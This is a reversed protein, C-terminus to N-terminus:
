KKQLNYKKVLEYVVKNITDEIKRFQFDPLTKLIKSNDYIISEQASRATEKTLLSKKGQLFAKLYSLRWIIESMFPTASKTPSKKGFADAMLKFLDKFSINTSNLIFKEGSVPSEMLKIMVEAVDEVDVYGHIGQTYYSFEEYVNKFLQTSGSNWDGAGLIISPNVIAMDMGEAFGRWVHMEAEHKTKGYYSAKREDFKTNEDIMTGNPTKGLAAVSSVYLMKKVKADICANVVNATGDINIRLMEDKHDPHFSVIAACHYVKDVGEMAKELAVVDLIDCKLTEIGQLPIGSRSLGIIRDRTNSKILKKILHSGLLGTAGTIM